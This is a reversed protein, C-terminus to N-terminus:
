SFRVNWNPLFHHFSAVRYCDEPHSNWASSDALVSALFLVLKAVTYLTSTLLTTSILFSLCHPGSQPPDLAMSFHKNWESIFPFGDSPKLFSTSHAPKATLVQQPTSRGPCPLLLCLPSFPSATYNDLCSLSTVQALANITSISFFSQIQFINWLYYLLFKNTM